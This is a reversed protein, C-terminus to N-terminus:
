AEDPPLLRERKKWAVEDRIYVLEAEEARQWEGSDFRAKALRLLASAMLVFDAAVRAPQVKIRDAYLWGDGVGLAVEGVDMIDGAASVGNDQEVILTDGAVRYCAWYIEDKRADLAPLIRAGDQLSFHQRAAEALAELTPVPIVPIDHSFALGQVVGFAIRLGTFSGPGSSFTLADVDALTLEAEQLVSEVMPLLLRTHARPTLSQREFCADGHRLAVSCASGSSELALITSM